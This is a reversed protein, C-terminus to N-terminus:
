TNKIIISEIANAADECRDTAAELGVLIEKIKILEIPDKCTRFLEAVAHEFIDDAKNECTNIHVLSERIKDKNDMDRLLPISKSLEIISEQLIEALKYGSDPFSNIEYLIVRKSIGQINDLVDDISDILMHIDERDFPAIFSKSLENFLKHSIIDGKHEIDEILLLKNKAEESLPFKFAQLLTNGGYVLNTIDEEFMQFFVDHRPVVKQILKNIKM